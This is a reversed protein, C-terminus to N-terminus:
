REKAIKHIVSTSLSPGGYVFFEAEGMIEPRQNLRRSDGGLAVLLYLAEFTGRFFVAFEWKELGFKM